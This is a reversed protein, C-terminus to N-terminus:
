LDQLVEDLSPFIFPRPAFRDTGFELFLGYEALQIEGQLDKVNPMISTILNSSDSAPAEGPASAIHVGRKGRKYERGSKPEAIRAKMRGATGFTILRIIDRSEDKLLGELDPIEVDISIM